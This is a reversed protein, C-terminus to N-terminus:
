KNTAYTTVICTTWNYQDDNIYELFTFIFISLHGDLLLFHDPLLVECPFLELDDMRKLLMALLHSTISGNESCSVVCPVEWGKFKCTSVNSVIHRM